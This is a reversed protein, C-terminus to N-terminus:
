NFPSFPKTSQEPSQLLFIFGSKCPIAGLGKSQKESLIMLLLDQQQDSLQLNQELRWHNPITFSFSSSSSINRSSQPFSPFSDILPSCWNVAAPSIKIREKPLNQTMGFGSEAFLFSLSSLSPLLCFSPSGLCLSLIDQKTEFSLSKLDLVSSGGLSGKKQSSTVLDWASKVLQDNKHGKKM